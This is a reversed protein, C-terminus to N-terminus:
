IGCRKMFMGNFGDLWQAKDNPIKNVAHVIEQVYFPEVLFSLDCAGKHLLSSQDLQMNIGHSAGMKEKYCHWAISAIEEHSTAVYGDSALIHSIYNKKL